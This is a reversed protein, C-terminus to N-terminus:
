RESFPDHFGERLVNDLPSGKDDGSPSRIKDDTMRKLERFILIPYM